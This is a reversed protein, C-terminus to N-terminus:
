PASACCVGAGCLRAWEWAMCAGMIAVLVDWVPGGLYAPCLAVPALILASVVRTRLASASAPPM